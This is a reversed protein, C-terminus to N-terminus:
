LNAKIGITFYRGMADAGNWVPLYEQPNASFIVDRSEPSNGLNQVSLYANLAGDNFSKTITMDVMDYAKVRPTTYIIGPQSARKFGSYWRNLFSFTWDDLTYNVLFTGRTKPACGVNGTNCYVFPATPFTEQENVPQYTLLGRMSISGPAGDFLDSLQFHYNTEFDWGELNSVSTNVGEILVQTPYNAPTRDSFPLPRVYLACYPGTGNALECLNLV